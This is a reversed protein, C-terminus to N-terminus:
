EDYGDCLERLNRNIQELARYLTARDEESVGKSVAELVLDV